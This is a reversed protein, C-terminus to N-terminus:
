LIESECSKEIIFFVKKECLELVIVVFEVTEFYSDFRVINKHKLNRHINIETMLQKQQNSNKPTSVKNKVEPHKTFQYKDVLKLAWNDGTELDECEYVRAFGGQYKKDLFFM